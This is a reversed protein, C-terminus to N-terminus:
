NGFPNTLRELDRERRSARSEKGMERLRRQEMMALAGVRYRDPMASLETTDIKGRQIEEALMQSQVRPIEMTGGIGQQDLLTALAQARAKRLQWPSLTTIRQGM